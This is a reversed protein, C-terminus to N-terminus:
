HIKRISRNSGVNLINSSHHVMMYMTGQPQIPSLGRIGKLMDMVLMSNDELHKNIKDHWKPDDNNLIDPLAAQVLTNAGLILGGLDVLGKRVASLENDIEHLTIWGLRWGPVCFKKAIGGCTLIPVRPQLSALPYFKFKCFTMGEYIEDAIIPIKYKSAIKLCEELHRKPYVSGCPNSPNNILWVKPSHEKILSELSSLKIQWSNDPDLPYFIPKAQISEVITTYLSFGPQPLLIADGKNLLVELALELAGSCGSGIIVDGETLNYGYTRNYYQSISSRAIPNGIQPAYGNTKPDELAKKVAQTVHEPCNMNGFATPDGLALSLVKKAPNPVLKMVDVINRIPNMTERAKESIKITFLSPCESPMM